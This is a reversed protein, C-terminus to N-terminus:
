SLLWKVKRLLPNFFNCKEQSDYVTETEKFVLGGNAWEKKKQLSAWEKKRLLSAWEKKKHSFGMGKEKPSFGM